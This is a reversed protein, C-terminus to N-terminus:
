LLLLDRSRPVSCPFCCDDARINLASRASLSEGFANGRLFSSAFRFRISNLKGRVRREGRGRTSRDRRESM